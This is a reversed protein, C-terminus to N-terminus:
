VCLNVTTCAVIGATETRLRSDGLSVPFYGFKIALDVEEKSFDGEPGILILIDKKGKLEESLLKKDQEYCHAIFCNDAKTTKIFQEFPTLQNLIPFYAKKSQKAASIIIKELRSENVNKRESFRCLLLSIEEIGIETVKEIFWETREINKTPAIAIHLKYNRKGFDFISKLIRFQCHKPHPLTIEAEYFGGVGDIVIIGDGAQLRLVKIAHQSEEESLITATSINPCYFLTM